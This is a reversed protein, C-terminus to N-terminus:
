GTSCLYSCSHLPALCLKWCPRVKSFDVLSMLVFGLIMFALVVFIGGHASSSSASVLAYRFPNSDFKTTLVIKCTRVLCPM